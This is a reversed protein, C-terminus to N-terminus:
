RENKDLFKLLDDYMGPESAYKAFNRATALWELTTPRVEKLATDLHRGSIAPADSGGIEEEIALDIATEVLNLLDAGSFGGTAAAYRGLDIGLAMPKGAMLGRLIVLRADRDPPPVFIVRDFRGPRRFANDVAWPV